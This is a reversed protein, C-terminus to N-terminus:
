WEGLAHKMSTRKTVNSEDKKGRILRMHQANKCFAEIEREEIPISRAYQKEIGRVLETVKQVDRRAKSKYVNQLEIYDSSQAKMDPLTGSLPLISEQQYFEYVARAIIWFNDSQYQNICVFYLL